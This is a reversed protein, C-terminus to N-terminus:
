IGNETVYLFCCQRLNDYRRFFLDKIGKKNNLDNHYTKM